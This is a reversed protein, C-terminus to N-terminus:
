KVVFCEKMVCKKFCKMSEWADWLVVEGFIPPVSAHATGRRLNQPSRGGMGRLRRGHTSAHLYAHTNLQFSAIHQMWM